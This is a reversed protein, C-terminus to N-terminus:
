KEYTVPVLLKMQSGAATTFSITMNIRGPDVQTAILEAGTLIEDQLFAASNVQNLLDALNIAYYNRLDQETRIAGQQVASLFDCGLEPNAASGKVTFLLSVFAQVSKQVGAVVAVPEAYQLSSRLKGSPLGAVRCDLSVLDIQRGTYDQSLATPM